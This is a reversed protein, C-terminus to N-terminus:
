ISKIGVPNLELLNSSASTSPLPVKSLVPQAARGQSFFIIGVDMAGESWRVKRHGYPWPEARSKLGLKLSGPAPGLKPPKATVGVTRAPEVNAGPGSSALGYRGCTSMACSANTGNVM